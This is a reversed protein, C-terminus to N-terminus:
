RRLRVVDDREGEGARLGLLKHVSTGERLHLAAGIEDVDRAAVQDVLLRELGREHRAMEAAAGHVDATRRVLHRRRAEGRARIDDGRRM